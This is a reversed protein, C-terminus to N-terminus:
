RWKDRDIKEGGSKTLMAEFVELPLDPPLREVNGNVMVVTLGDPHNALHKFFNRKDFTPPLNDWDLDRPEAWPIGSSGMEVLMITDAPDDTIESHRLGQDVGWVTDTGRIAVYNTYNPYTRDEWPSKYVGVERSTLKGNDESNWPQDFHLREYLDGEEVYKLILARWSHFPRGEGDTTYAPPLSGHQDEYNLIAVALQKLYCSLCSYKAAERAIHVAALLWALLSIVIFVGLFRLWPGNRGHFTLSWFFLLLSVAAITVTAILAISHEFAAMTVVFLFIALMVWGPVYLSALRDTRCSESPTPALGFRHTETTM